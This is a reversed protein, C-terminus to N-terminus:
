ERTLPNKYFIERFQIKEFIGGMKSTQQRAFFYFRNTVGVLETKRGAESVSGPKSLIRVSL